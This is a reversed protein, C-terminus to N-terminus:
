QKITIKLATTNDLQKPTNQKVIDTATQGEPYHTAFLDRGVLGKRIGDTVGDSTLILEMGPQNSIYHYDPTMTQNPSLVRSIVNGLYTITDAIINDASIEGKNVLTTIADHDTTELQEGQHTKTHLRSDGIHVVQIGNTFILCATFTTMRNDDSTLNRSVHTYM